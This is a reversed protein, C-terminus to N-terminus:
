DCETSAPSSLEFIVLLPCASDIINNCLRTEMPFWALLLRTFTLKIKQFFVGGRELQISSVWLMTSSVRFCHQKLSPSIGLCVHPLALYRRDSPLKEGSCTQIHTMCSHLAKEALVKRHQKRQILASMKNWTDTLLFLLNLSFFVM